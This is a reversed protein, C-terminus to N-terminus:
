VNMLIQTAAVQRLGAASELLYHGCGFTLCSQPSFIPGITDGYKCLYRTATNVFTDTGDAQGRFEPYGCGM